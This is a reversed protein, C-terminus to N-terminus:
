PPNGESEFLFAKITKSLAKLNVPKSLYENMGADLCRQRDNPMALATLAIIPTEKFEPDSRLKETTEFGDMRPMQIDMLILDPHAIKAQTLGDIGDQATVMNFGVMELYDVLMMVVEQTDEILLVTPRVENPNIARFKGTSRLRAMTEGAMAPQWPLRITFSSGNGPRSDVIVSGGHLQAMQAVLALGLGTGTAERALGADLQVFPRFLRQIDNESIGIGEDWVTISVINADEDGHVQLGLKGSEPTFKVANSLLNVIMQKLRREDAWMLGLNPGIEFSVDQNKKQALQKIMRLSAQCVSNVDVKNIDLTIQGAEIKALDLIDNILSLLHHGSENITSLYRSQKENLPGAVQESLSESLGLIANLPTRLEHSMNALFEDKVRLARALNSNARSLDATREEVRRALQNREEALETEIRRRETIDWAYDAFRTAVEVDQQTYQQEKNGVAIVAVIKENRIVPLIMERTLEVHGERLGKKNPIAEFDEHIVPRRQRVADAWIGAQDLPYHMGTEAGDVRCYREITETSWTQLSITTEDPEVIHLFGVHSETLASVEDVVKKMVDVLSHNTSYEILEVRKQLLAEFNKRETVDRAVVSVGRASPYASIELNRKQGQTSANIEFIKAQREKLVSKYIEPHKFIDLGTAKIEQMSKGIVDAAPIGSFMESAKNWHTYRLDQDLEFLIDTISDALQRYHTESAWLAQQARKRETLERQMSQYLRANEFAIAAQNALTALLREDQVTFADPQDSEVSICGIVHDGAELPMYLGSMIEQHTDVYQPHTHVNGTRISKRTQMALGSLGQGIKSVRTTYRIEAEARAEDSLGPQNFAILELSDTEPDLLRIVVHHWSLHRAFTEIIQNGIERPELLRGIALGNEYLAELEALHRRTELESQKRQTIDASIGALIKVQGNEDFVPFARDWIWRVSGDSHVIQYEMEAKEGMKEREIGSLVISRDAPLVSKLFLGPEQLLTELSFGWIKMVAPSAYLERGSKADTMWFVEEINAALQRFREESARLENEARKRETIDVISVIVRSWDEEYGSPITGTVILDLAQGDFAKDSGEWIFGRVPSLLGLLETRFHPFVGNGAMISLNKMLDEKKEARFIDLSARNVDNIRVLSALEFIQEPYMDFYHAFDTVGGERLEDVRQKVLSYDEEWLSIPSKDFLDQYRAQSEQLANEARKRESVDRFSWVRGVISEGLRQPQSFREFVRGDRFQLEDFSIDEQSQYLKEVKAIFSSPNRLQELVFDLLVRDNKQAALEQPIRWLELFKQNFNTIKGKSDVVLIGDATSELTAYLLSHSRKLEDEARKRETIDVISVIVRSWDEEYGTPITGTVIVDLAQGDFRKDPGEWVFGRTPSLLGLLEERFHQLVDKELLVTLNRLLDEKETAHFLDLSTNNVDIVRVLSALELPEDPHQDFYEAFDTVGSERLADIRKKVLSYDEEWLSIPSTDFLDQYRAQSQLLASEALKRETIDRGVGQFEVPQGDEDYIAQDTWENWGVSGDPKLVRHSETEVSSIGSLLRTLKEQVMQRDDEHILPMFNADRAQEATIGYYRCYADNVFTRTGDKKWRVIFETQNEVVTRYRSESQQLKEEIRKRQTINEHALIVWKQKGDDFCTIHVIFWRKETPSHAPYEVSAESTEGSLVRHIASAIEKAVVADPGDASECVAVYNTGICYDPNQLGNQDGFERWAENVQVITGDKDLIAIHASLSNQIGQLFKESKRVRENVQQRQILSTLQEAITEIRKLDANTLLGASSVDLFGIVEEHSILPVIITSRIKLLKFIHPILRHVTARALPPLFRTETFEAIWEQIKQPDTTVLSQKTLLANHFHGGEKIPIDIKPIRFGLLREIRKETEPSFSYQQMTLTRKDPALMYITSGVASFIRKLERALLEIISDLDQGRVVANNILNLLRLDENKHHLETETRRREAIEERAQQLLRANYIALAAQNAFAELREAHFATFFGPMESDLLIFGIVEDRISIPAGVSSRLWDTVEMRKWGPYTHTDSIIVPQRTELMQRLNRTESLPLRLGLIEDKIGLKDYGHSRVVRAFGDEILMITGANHPAVREVAALIHDLVEGYDLTSNLLQATDRLAEALTRQEREAQQVRRNETVDITTVIVKSFDREYGPVVSWTLQIELSIGDCTEDAGEWSNSTRGEAIALLDEILHEQEGRSTEQLTERILREKTGARYMEVAAHNVDLIRQLDDCRKVQEPHSILYARLDTIGQSKLSELHAKVASFDEEWIAVPMNEFFTRYRLENARLAEEALKRETIDSMSLLLHQEENAQFLVCRVAMWIERGFTSILHIDSSALTQSSIAQKALAYLGSTKWSPITHFNQARLDEVTAGIMDAARENAFICEGTLKYSLIGLPSQHLIQENFSHLDRIQAEANKRETIDRGIGVLGIVNGSEDRLPIKSTLVSVRHGEPDLGPEEYNIVPQGTELVEHDVQWFPEALELPYLDFDTKGIVDEMTKGGSAQWDATNSMTKRGQKDMAYIRDPLHDILTRLLNRETRLAEQARKQETIDRSTGTMGMVTGDQDRVVISNASLIIQRGDRHRVYVEYEHYVTQTSLAERFTEPTLHDHDPDMIDFYFRGILEEPEYGYINRAAGNVFTFRGQADVAWILDHSTEVLKQYQDQNERLEQEANKRETIDRYNIVVAEVSPEQLMNTATAEIWLWTGDRRKLRFIGHQQSGPQRAVQSFLDSTWALDDPHMLEFINRSLFEGPEYGLVREVAPNEWILVGDATLLSISDLSNEILARFHKEQMHLKEEAQKRETVDISTALLAPQGDYEIPNAFTHIWRMTGDKRIIRVDNVDSLVEGVLRRAAREQAISRDEPHTLALIQEQSMALLEDATYGMITCMASNVYVISQKQFIAIGQLSNEALARYNMESRNLKDEARKRELLRQREELAHLIAPVLATIDEKLIYNHAGAKMCAVAVDEGMSNTWIIFPTFPLHEQALQLAKMGDFAALSYNSLILDPQFSALEVLYENLTAVRKFVSSNLSKQIERQALDYKNPNDEVILIRIKKSM